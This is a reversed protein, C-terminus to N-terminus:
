WTDIAVGCTKKIFGVGEWWSLSQNANCPPKTLTPIHVIKSNEAPKGPATATAGHQQGQGGGGCCQCQTLPLVTLGLNCEEGTLALSGPRENTLVRWVSRQNAAWSPRWGGDGWRLEPEPSAGLSGRDEHGPGPRGICTIVLLRALHCESVSCIWVSYYVHRFLLFICNAIQDPIDTVSSQDAVYYMSSRCHLPM